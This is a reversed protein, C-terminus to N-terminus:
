PHWIVAHQVGTYGEEPMAALENLKVTGVLCPTEIEGEYRGWYLASVGGNRGSTPFPKALISAIAIMSFAAMILMVFLFTPM